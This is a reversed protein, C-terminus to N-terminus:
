LPDNNRAIKCDRGDVLFHVLDVARRLYYKPSAVGDGDPFIKGNPLVDRM